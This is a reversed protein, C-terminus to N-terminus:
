HLLMSAHAGCMGAVCLALVGGYMLVMLADQEVAAAAMLRWSRRRACLMCPRVARRRARACAAARVRADAGPWRRLTQM